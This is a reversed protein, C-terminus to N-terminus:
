RPNNVGAILDNQHNSNHLILGSLELAGDVNYQRILPQWACLVLLRKDKNKYVGIQYVL